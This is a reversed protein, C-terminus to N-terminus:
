VELLPTQRYYYGESHKKSAEYESARLRKGKPYSDGNGGTPIIDVPTSDAAPNTETSNGTRTNRKQAKLRRKRIREAKADVKTDPKKVQNLAGPQEPTPHIGGTRGFGVGGIRSMELKEETEPLLKGFWMGRKSSFSFVDPWRWVRKGHKGYPSLALSVLAERNAGEPLIRMLSRIGGRVSEGYEFWLRNWAEVVYHVTYLEPKEEHFKKLYKLALLREGKREEGYLLPFLRVQQKAAALFYGLTHPEKGKAELKSGDWTYGKYRVSDLPFCDALTVSVEQGGEGPHFGFRGSAAAKAIRNTIVIRMKKNWLRDRESKGQRRLCEELEGGYTGAGLITKRMGFGRLAVVM